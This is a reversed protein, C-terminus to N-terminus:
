FIGRSLPYGSPWLPGCGVRLPEWWVGAKNPHRGLSRRPAGEVGSSIGQHCLESISEVLIGHSLNTHVLIKILPWPGPHVLDSVSNFKFLKVWIVKWFFFFFSVLTVWVRQWTTVSGPRSVAKSQRFEFVTVLKDPWVEVLTRRAM